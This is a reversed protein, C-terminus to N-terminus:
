VLVQYGSTNGSVTNRAEGGDYFLKKKENPSRKSLLICKVKRQPM